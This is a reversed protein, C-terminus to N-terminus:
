ESAWRPIMEEHVSLEKKLEHFHPLISGVLNWFRRSHNLHVTHCLEHILVYELLKPPILLLKQNISITGSPSYSAWCTQQNRITTKKVPDFGHRSALLHLRPVVTQRARRSLWRKMAGTVAV